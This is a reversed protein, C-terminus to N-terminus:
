ASWSRKSDMSSSAVVISFAIAIPLSIATLLVHLPRLARPAALALLACLAAIGWLTWAITGATEPRFDFGFLAHRYRLWAGLAGFAVLCIGGFGRLQRAPPNWNVEILAM